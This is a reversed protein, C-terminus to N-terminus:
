NKCLKSWEELKKKILNLKSELRNIKMQFSSGGEKEELQVELGRIEAQLDKLEKDKLNLATTLEQNKQIIQKQCDPCFPGVQCTKRCEYCRPM